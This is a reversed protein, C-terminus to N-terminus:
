EDTEEEVPVAVLKYTGPAVLGKDLDVHDVLAVVLGFDGHTVEVTPADSLLARYYGIEIKADDIVSEQWGWESELGAKDLRALDTRESM